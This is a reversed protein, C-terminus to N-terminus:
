NRLKKYVIPLPFFEYYSNEDFWACKFDTLKMGTLKSLALAYITLQSIPKDRKANPKYDLIHISNNRVQLFDIHGTLIKNLKIPIDFGVKKFEKLDENSIFVPIETAITVSDNAIMFKQLEDHRAKNNNVAQIVFDTLRTAFNNKEQITVQSLDFNHKVETYFFKKEILLHKNQEIEGRKEELIM